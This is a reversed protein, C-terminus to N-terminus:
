NCVVHDRGRTGYLILIAAQLLTDTRIFSEQEIIYAQFCSRKDNVHCGDRGPNAMRLYDYDFM